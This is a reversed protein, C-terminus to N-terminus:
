RVEAVVGDLLAEMRTIQVEACYKARHAEMAAGGMLARAAPDMEVMRRVADALAEPNSPEVAVGFGDQEVMRAADGRVAMLVPKGAALYAFTKSPISIETLPDPKVHVLLVDALAYLAAMSEPPRRGLFRVNTLKERQAAAVLRDYETGGGVLVFQGGPLWRLRKAAEIVTQLDQLSGMNGAYMVNFRGALGERAALAADYPMRQYTESPMWNHIVTLKREAVGHRVLNERFGETVVSIRKAGSYIFRMVLRILWELLRGRAMGSMTVSEPWLDVVDLVYPARKVASLVRAALGVPMAAQYVLIVDPRKAAAAGIMASSVAFSLYYILRRLASTGHDPIQPVRLISVGDLTERALLRQRWGDYTRGLPYCPFGTVVEVQHGLRALGRALDHVKEVPEPHYYQSLLLVRM